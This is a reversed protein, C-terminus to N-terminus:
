SKSKRINERVKWHVVCEPARSKDEETVEKVCGKKSCIVQEKYGSVM